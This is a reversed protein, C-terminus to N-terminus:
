SFIRKAMRFSDSPTVTRITRSSSHSAISAIWRPVSHMSTVLKSASGLRAGSSEMSRRRGSNADQALPAFDSDFRYRKRNNRRILFIFEDGRPESTDRAKISVRNGSQEGLVAQLWAFDIECRNVNTQSTRRDSM